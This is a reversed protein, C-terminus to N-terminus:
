LTYTMEVLREVVAAREGPTNVAVGTCDELWIGDAAYRILRGTASAADELHDDLRLRLWNRWLEGLGEDRSMALAFSRMLGVTESEPPPLATARVYARTFRGRPEPDRAMFVEINDAFVTLLDHFLARLLAQRNPFHHILGGKSVGARRAVADLSLNNVGREVAVQAAAELLRAQVVLPQKKKGYNGDM